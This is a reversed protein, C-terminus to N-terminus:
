LSSVKFLKANLQQQLVIVKLTPYLCEANSVKGGLVQLEVVEEDGTQTEITSEEEEEESEVNSVVNPPETEM